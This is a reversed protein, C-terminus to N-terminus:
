LEHPPHHDTYERTLGWVGPVFGRSRSRYVRAKKIQSLAIRVAAPRPRSHQRPLIGYPSIQSSIQPTGIKLPRIKALDSTGSGFVLKFHEKPARGVERTKTMFSV